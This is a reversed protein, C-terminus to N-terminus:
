YAAILITEIEARELERPTNNIFPYGAALTAIDSFVSKSVDYNSLRLPINLDTELRRIAEVAKIAAEIVTIEKVDEGMVKSMQVYKGPSSTLNFEMIHPLIICMAEDVTVNTKSSIALSIAMTASLYATSFAIGSMVSATSLFLRPTANKSERYAVPLHRFTMDIAKLAYTNIIENNTKSIVSETSMSLTSISSKMAKEEDVLLSVSPDVITAVPYLAENFYVRRTLGRIEVLYFLPAIEFGMVPYAPISVFPVPTEAPDPGSFLDDCFVYNSLLLSIAKAANISETGGFGIILNCNTKRLFSVAFDIDETNPSSPLEDYIICGIDAEKLSDSIREVVRQFVEFDSSTTILITRSGYRKIIKAISKLIEMRIYIETPLHFDPTIEILDKKYLTQHM